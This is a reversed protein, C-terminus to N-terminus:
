RTVMGLDVFAGDKMVIFPREEFSLGGKGDHEIVQVKGMGYGMPGRSYYHAQLTYPGARRQKPARITFCEPGYGTTVDAYLRGGSSLTPQSYYAHRGAGDYIHFDVDNADTEWNLVFRLSAADEKTGGAKALRAEIDARRGPQAKIWAAAVLGLDESLVARWERFRGDPYQRTLASELAAFAEEHRGQKVLAFALLRHGHPHDPRQEVAQRYDDAALALGKGAALRELRAGAFRRLDARAPFLDILSGYARAADEVRGAAEYAEGLALLALVDGPAESLWSRASSIAEANKKVSIKDMIEKLKGTYPDSGRRISEVVPSPRAAEASRSQAALADAERLRMLSGGAGQGRVVSAPTPRPAAPLPREAMAPLAEAPSPGPAARPADDSGFAGSEAEEVAGGISAMGGGSGGGGGDLAAASGMIMSQSSMAAGVMAKAAAAARGRFSQAEAEKRKREDARRAQLREQDAKRLASQAAAVALDASTRKTLALSANEVTLIDALAARDIGFRAYDEETELVLLSTFPSLVRHMRSLTVIESALKDKAAQGDARDRRDVLSDIRAKAWARQLLPKRDDGVRRASVPRETGGISVNLSASAPLEAYVLVEDGAQVGDLRAPWVWSAGAVEVKLGSLTAETLRRGITEPGEAADVVAGDRPLGATTLRKLLAEDRLGGAVVADLRQAGADKLRKALVALEEGSSKGATAIGDTILLVRAAPRRRLAQRTWTLMGEYDSAGLAGRQRLTKLHDASFGGATGAYIARVEQDFAAVEVPTHAGAGRALGALLRELLRLQAEFGLARSASTDMLVLLSPIEDPRSDGVPSVRMAAINGHRLASGAANAPIAATFDGAPVSKSRKLRGFVAGGAAAEVDLTGVEPLGRLPLIYPAGSRPLEQSYSLILEKVGKAPIPFVRASFENGAAQELLAPDQRRHLFDEYVARARQKEVVEGEQWGQDQKMAFRSVSAGSPLTIRFQGEIVRDQPNEFSLKLETFALPGEVVARAALVTLKLGTGDSATLSLPSEPLGAPELRPLGEWRFSTGGFRGPVGPAGVSAAFSGGPLALSLSVALARRLPFTNM